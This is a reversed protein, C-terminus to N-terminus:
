GVEVVGYTTAFAVEAFDNNNNNIMEGVIPTAKM